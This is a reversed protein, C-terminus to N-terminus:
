EAPEVESSGAGVEYIVGLEVHWLGECSACLFVVLDSLTTGNLDGGCRPCGELDPFLLSGLSEHDHASTTTM